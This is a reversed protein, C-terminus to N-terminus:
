GRGRLKVVLTWFIGFLLVASFLYPVFAFPDSRVWFRYALVGPLMEASEGLYVTFAGVKQPFNWGIRVPANQGALLVNCGASDSSLIKFSTGSASDLVVTAGSVGVADFSRRFPEGALSGAILILFSAHVLLIGLSKRTHPIRFLVVSLLHLFLLAALSKMAPFPFIGAVSLFWSKFFRVTGPEMGARAEFLTGWFVLLAVTSLLAIGVQFSGFLRFLRLASKM